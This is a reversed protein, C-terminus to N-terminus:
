EGTLWLRLWVPAVVFIATVSSSFRRRRFDIDCQGPIVYRGDHQEVPSTTPFTM